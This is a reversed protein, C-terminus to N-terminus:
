LKLTDAASLQLHGVPVGWARLCMCKDLRMQQASHSWLMCRILIDQCVGCADCTSHQHCSCGCLVIATSRICSGRQMHFWFREKVRPKLPVPKCFFPLPAAPFCIVALLLCEVGFSLSIQLGLEWNKCIHIYVSCPLHPM